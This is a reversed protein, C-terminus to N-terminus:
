LPPPAGPLREAAGEEKEPRAARACGPQLGSAAWGRWVAQRSHPVSLLHTPHALQDVPQVEPDDLEGVVPAVPADRDVLFDPTFCVGQVGFM